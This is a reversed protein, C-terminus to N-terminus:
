VFAHLGLGAALVGYAAALMLRPRSTAVREALLLASVTVAILLSPSLAMVAMAPLCTFVCRMSTEFGFLVADRHRHAPRILASRHCFRLKADRGRRLQGGSCWVAMAAAVGEQSAAMSVTEAAAHLGLGITVWLGLFAAFATIANTNAHRWLSARQAALCLTIAFPSMMATTMAVTMALHASHRAAAAFGTRISSHVAVFAAWGAASAAIPLAWAPWLSAWRSEFSSGVRQALQLLRPLPTAVPAPPGSGSVPVASSRM